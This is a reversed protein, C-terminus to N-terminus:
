MEPMSLSWRRALVRRRHVRISQDDIADGDIGSHTLDRSHPMETRTKRLAAMMM